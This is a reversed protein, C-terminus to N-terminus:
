PSDFPDDPFRIRLRGATEAYHQQLLLRGFGAAGYFYGTFAVPDGPGGQFGYLPVPWNLGPPAEVAQALIDTVIANALQRDQQAGGAAAWDLLFAAAGSTGFRRDRRFPGAWVTTDASAGPMGTAHLTRAAAQVLEKFADDGTLQWLAFHLRATGAPGHAWGIDYPTAYGDNPVGYPVLLFDNRRDAVQLLYDSAKRAAQHFRPEGTEASLRAMFYGVGATGHSFNPLDFPTEKGRVWFWGGEATDAAALLTDGARAAASLFEDEGYVRRAFLLSLGIGARGTLVDHVTGWSEESSAIQHYLAKARGIMEDDALVEGVAAAAFAIGALGNYLGFGMEATDAAAMSASMERRAAERFAADKTAAYLEALFVARGASGSGLGPSAEGAAVRPPLDRGEDLSDVSLMWHGASTAASLYETTTVPDGLPETDRGCGSFGVWLCLALLAIIQKM